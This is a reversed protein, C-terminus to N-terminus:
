IERSVHGLRRWVDGIRCKGYAGLRRGEERMGDSRVELGQVEERRSAEMRRADLAKDGGYLWGTM